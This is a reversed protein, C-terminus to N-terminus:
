PRCSPSCSRLRRCVRAHLRGQGHAHHAPARAHRVPARAPDRRVHRHVDRGDPLRRAPGPRDRRLGPTGNYIWALLGLLVCPVVIILGITRHDTRVQRLVRGSTAATLGANVVREEGPGPPRPTSSPSSPPTPTSPAPRRSCSPPRSTPSCTARACSSSGTAAPRRTWSTARCSSRTGADALHRFLDWLDRRLVPDLGVTPEDLVLLSPRGVLAAALSVRSEQGGSLDQSSSTPTPSSTSRPSPATSPRACSPRRAARRGPRLLRRQRPRQPRRLRQPEPHRLRRPRAARALGGSPRARTVTGSEVIQVGVICRMLTSKGSGSPGLLGVVQGAPIELDLGPIVRRKGRVVQLGSVAVAPGSNNMM